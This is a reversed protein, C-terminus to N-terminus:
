RNITVVQSKDLYAAPPSIRDVVFGRNVRVEAGQRLQNFEEISLAVSFADGRCGSGPMQKGDIIIINPFAGERCKRNPFSLYLIVANTALHKELRVTPTRAVLDAQIEEPSKRYAEPVKLLVSLTSKSELDGEGATALALVAGDFLKQDLIGTAFEKLSVRSAAHASNNIWILYTGQPLVDQTQIRLSFSYPFTTPEGDVTRTYNRNIKELRYSVVGLPGSPNSTEEVLLEVTGRVEANSQPHLTNVGILVYTVLVVAQWKMSM